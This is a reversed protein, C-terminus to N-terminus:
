KVIIKTTGVINVGHRPTALRQGQLNYIATSSSSPQHDASPVDEIADYVDTTAKYPIICVGLLGNYYTGPVPLIWSAKEWAMSRAKIGIDAGQPNQPNRNTRSWEAEQKIFSSEGHEYTNITIKSCNRPLPVFIISSVDEKACIIANFAIIICIVPNQAEKSYSNDFMQRIKAADFWDEEM